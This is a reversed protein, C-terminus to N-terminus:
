LKIDSEEKDSILNFKTIVANSLDIEFIAALLDIHIIVDALEMALHSISGNGRKLKKIENYVEEIEGIIALTWDTPTWDNIEHFIQERRKVNLKRLDSLNLKKM